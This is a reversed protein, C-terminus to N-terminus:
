ESPDGPELISGTDRTDGAKAPPNKVMPAVQSAWFAGLIRTKLFLRTFGQLIRKYILINSQPLSKM